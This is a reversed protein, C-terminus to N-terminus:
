LVYCTGVGHDSYIVDYQISRSKRIRFTCNRWKENQKELIRSTLKTRWWVNMLVPPSCCCTIWASADCFILTASTFCMRNQEILSGQPATLSLHTQFLIRDEHPSDPVKMRRLIDDKSVVKHKFISHQQIWILAQHWVSMLLLTIRSDLIVSQEYQFTVTQGTM